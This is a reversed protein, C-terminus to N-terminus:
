GRHNSGHQIVSQISAGPNAGALVLSVERINGHVVNSMNQKLQNAYISLASIDGHQILLKATKGAETDNLSCYAYVGDERNELLAHGLVENPDDHQHNWVLPVKQGDNQKFADRMITRGDSCKLNARTAWGSFAYKKTKEEKM